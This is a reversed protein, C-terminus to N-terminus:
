HLPLSLDIQTQQKFDHTKAVQSHVPAILRILIFPSFSRLSLKLIGQSFGLHYQKTCHQTTTKIQQHYHLNNNPQLGFESYWATVQGSLQMGAWHTLPPQLASQHLDATSQLLELQTYILSLGVNGKHLIATVQNVASRTCYYPTYIGTTHVIYRM